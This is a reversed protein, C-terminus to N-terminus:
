RTIRGTVEVFRGGDHVLVPWLESHDQDGLSHDLRGAAQLAGHVARYASGIEASVPRLDRDLWYTVNGDGGPTHHFVWATLAGDDGTRVDFVAPRGDVIRSLEMQPFVLFARPGGAPCTRCVKDASEAPASGTVRDADFVALSAGLHDNNAAGVLISPRGQVVADAVLEVYGASWYESLPRGDSGSLREVLCPFFGTEVHIWAAWLTPARSTGTVFMRHGSWAPTYTRDGFRVSRDPTRKWLENGKADLCHLIVPWHTGQRPAFVLVERVGDGNV